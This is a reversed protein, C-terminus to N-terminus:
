DRQKRKWELFNQKTWRNITFYSKSPKIPELAFEKAIRDSYVKRNGHLAIKQNHIENLLNTYEELDNSSEEVEKEFKKSSM